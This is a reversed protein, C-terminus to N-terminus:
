LVDYIHFFFAGLGVDGYGKRSLWFHCIKKCMHLHDLKALQFEDELFLSLFSEFDRFFFVDPSM